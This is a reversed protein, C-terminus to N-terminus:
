SIREIPITICCPPEGSEHSHTDGALTGAALAAVGLSASGSCTGTVDGDIDGTFGHDHSPGTHHHPNMTISGSSISHHHNPSTVPHTHSNLDHHHAAVSAGTLAHSHSSLSVSIGSVSHHHGSDSVTMFISLSHAHLLDSCDDTTGLNTNYGYGSTGSGPGGNIFTTAGSGHHHAISTTNNGTSGTFLPISIGTTADGTNGSGLTGTPSAADTNGTLTSGADGTNGSAAGTVTIGATADGTNGPLTVNGTSTTDGTDGDGGADTTGSCSGSCSGSIDGSFSGTATGSATSGSITVTADGTDVSPVNDAPTDGWQVFLGLFNRGSGGNAVSNAVGDMIAWGAPINTKLGTWGFWVGKPVKSAAAAIAAQMQPILQALANWNTRQATANCPDPNITLSAM